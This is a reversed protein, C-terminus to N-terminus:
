APMAERIVAVAAGPDPVTVTVTRGTRLTLRLTPGSRVTCCTRRGTWWFGYVVYWSHLDIVEAREIQDLGYTCRPWGLLGFRISVGGPGATTRVSSGTLVNVLVAVIVVLFPVVLGRRSGDSSWGMVLLPVALVASLTVLPWNTARGTYISYQGRGPFASATM